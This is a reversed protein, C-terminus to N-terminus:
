EDENGMFPYWTGKEENDIDDQSFVVQVTKILIKIDNILSISNVYEVDYKFKDKWSCNARGNVQALGTLGPRVDHRHHQEENYLPLYQVLLPRPGVIAMDGKLINFLEPIEDLSTRRLWKGYETLRVEDPLYDGNEDKEETMSRFKIFKFIKEDKGPRDQIFFPNGKMKIRGIIILVLFLPSLVIIGLLSLVFDFFRKFFYKYM